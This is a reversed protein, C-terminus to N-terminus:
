SKRRRKWLHAFIAFLQRKMGERKYKKITRATTVLTMMTADGEQVAACLAAMGFGNM